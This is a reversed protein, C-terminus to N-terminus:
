VSIIISIINEHEDSLIYKGLDVIYEYNNIYQQRDHDHM